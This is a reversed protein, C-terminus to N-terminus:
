KGLYCSMRCMRVHQSQRFEHKTDQGLGRPLRREVPNMRFENWISM